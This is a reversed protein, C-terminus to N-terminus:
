PIGIFLGLIFARYILVAGLITLGCATIIRLWRPKRLVGLGWGALFLLTIYLLCYPLGRLANLLSFENQLLMGGLFPVLISCGIGIIGWLNGNKIKGKLHLWMIPLSLVVALGQYFYRSYIEIM